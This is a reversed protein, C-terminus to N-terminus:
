DVHLRDAPQLATVPTWVLPQNLLSLTHAHAQFQVHFQRYDHKVDSNQWGQDFHHAEILICWAAGSFTFGPEGFLIDTAQLAM